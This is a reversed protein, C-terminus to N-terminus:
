VYVSMKGGMGIGVRTAKAVMRARVQRTGSALVVVDM